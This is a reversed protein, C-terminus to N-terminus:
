DWYQGSPRHNYGFFDRQEEGHHVRGLRHAGFGLIGLIPLTVKARGNTFLKGIGRGVAELGDGVAKGFDNPLHVKGLGSKIGAGFRNWFVNFPKHVNKAGFGGYLGAVGLALPITNKLLVDQVFGTAYIKTKTWTNRLGFPGDIRIRNLDKAM